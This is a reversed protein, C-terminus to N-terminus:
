HPTSWLAARRSSHRDDDGRARGAHHEIRGAGPPGRRDGRWDGRWDRFASKLHRWMEWVLLLAILGANFLLVYAVCKVVVSM